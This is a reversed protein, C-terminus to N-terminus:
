CVPSQLHNLADKKGQNKGAEEGGAEEWGNLNGGAGGTPRHKAKKEQKEQKGKKKGGTWRHTSNTNTTKPKHNLNLSLNLTQTPQAWGRSGQV